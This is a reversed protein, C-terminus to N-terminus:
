DKFSIGWVQSFGTEGILTAIGNTPNISALWDTTSGTKIVTAFLEGSSEYAMDGSSTLGPRFHNHVTLTLFVDSFISL